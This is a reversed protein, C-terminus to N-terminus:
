HIGFSELHQPLCIPKPSRWPHQVNTDNCNSSTLATFETESNTNKHCTSFLHVIHSFAQYSGTNKQWANMIPHNWAWHTNAPSGFSSTQALFNKGAYQQQFCSLNRSQSKTQWSKSIPSSSLYNRPSGSLTQEHAVQIPTRLTWWPPFCPPHASKSKLIIDDIADEIAKYNWLKPSSDKCFSESKFEHINTFNRVKWLHYQGSDVPNVQQARPQIKCRRVWPKHCQWM